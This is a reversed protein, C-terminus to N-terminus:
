RPPSASFGFMVLLWVSASSTCTSRWMSRASTSCPITLSTSLALMTATSLPPASFLTTSSTSYSACGPPRAWATPWLATSLRQVPAPSSPSGRLPGPSSTPALFVVYGSTSGRTNPWGAWDTDTYVVLKSTPSPRLLLGYDLSGHLSHLIQKLATLHPERPTHMHLCVQQVAYAIDPRSFTLYQLANTLSQYSTADTVLPGDDQSLMAQTDVHTSCPKCDSM